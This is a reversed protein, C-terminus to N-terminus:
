WVQNLECYLVMDRSKLIWLAQSLFSAPIASSSCCVILSRSGYFSNMGCFATKM